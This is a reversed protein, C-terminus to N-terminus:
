TNSSECTSIKSSFKISCGIFLMILLWACIVIYCVNKSHFRIISKPQANSINETDYNRFLISANDKRQYKFINKELKEDFLDTRGIDSEWAPKTEIKKAKQLINSIRGEAKIRIVTLHLISVSFTKGRM